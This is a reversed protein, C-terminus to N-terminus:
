RQGREPAQSCRKHAEARNLLVATNIFGLHSFAQPFNGLMEGTRPDIEESFLGLDNASSRINEFLESASALDGLMILDNALWYTCINFVGDDGALGDDFGRYRYVSAKLLQIGFEEIMLRDVERMQERTVVPMNAALLRPLTDLAGSMEPSM